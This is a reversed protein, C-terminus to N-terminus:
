KLHKVDNENHLTDGQLRMAIVLPATIKLSSGFHETSIKWLILIGLGCNFYCVIMMPLSLILYHRFFLKKQVDDPTKQYDSVRQITRMFYTLQHVVRHCFITDAAHPQTKAYETLRLM